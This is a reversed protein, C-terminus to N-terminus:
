ALSFRTIIPSGQGMISFNTTLIGTSQLNKKFGTIVAAGKLGDGVAYGAPPPDQQWVWVERGSTANSAAYFVRRYAEDDTLLNATWPMEWSQSTIAGDKYGLPDEFVLVDTRDANIQVDLQTGGLLRLKALYNATSPGTLAAIAPEIKLSTAGVKADETLYATLNSTGNDFTLPTGGALAGTLATVAVATAAATIGSSVQVAVDTPETRDGLPLLAVYLKVKNGSGVQFTKSM